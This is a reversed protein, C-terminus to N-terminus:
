LSPVSYDELTQQQKRQLNATEASIGGLLSDKFATVLGARIKPGAKKIQNVGALLKMVDENSVANSKILINKMDDFRQVIQDEPVTHFYSFLSKKFDLKGQPSNVLNRLAVDIKEANVANKNGLLTPISDRAMATYEKEEAEKLIKYLPKGTFTTFYEDLHKRLIKEATGSLNEIKAFGKSQQALNLLNDAYDGAEKIKTGQSRVVGMISDIDNKTIFKEGLEQYADNLEKELLAAQGSTGFGKGSTYLENITNKYLQRITSTAADDGFSMGYKEALLKKTALDNAKTFDLSAMGLVSSKKGFSWNRLLREAETDGGLMMKWANTVKGTWGYPLIYNIISPTRKIAEQGLSTIGGTAFEVGMAALDTDANEPKGVKYAEGVYSSLGGEVAGAFFKRIIDWSISGARYQPSLKLFPSLLNFLGGLGSSMVVNDMNVNKYTALEFNEADSPGEAVIDLNPNGTLNTMAPASPLNNRLSSIYKLGSMPINRADKTEAFARAVSPGEKYALAALYPDNFEDVQQKLYYVGGRINDNLNTPDVGVEEATPALLQMVGAATSGVNQANQNFSSEQFAIALALDVDVGQRKAEDAVKKAIILQDNSMLSWDLGGAM